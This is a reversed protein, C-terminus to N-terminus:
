IVPGLLMFMATPNARKVLKMNFILGEVYERLQAETKMYPITNGGYQFIFVDPKREESMQRYNEYNMRTFIRGAEGRM